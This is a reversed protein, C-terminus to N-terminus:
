AIGASNAGAASATKLSLFDAVGILRLVQREVPRIGRRNEDHVL